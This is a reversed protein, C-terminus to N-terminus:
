HKGKGGGGGKGNGNGEGHGKGGGKEKGEGNGEGNGGGHGRGVHKGERVLVVNRAAFRPAVVVTRRAVYRHGPAVAVYRHGPAGFNKVQGPPIGGHGPPIGGHGPPVGLTSYARGRREAVFVVPTRARIVDVVPASALRHGYQVLVLDRVMYDSLRLATPQTRWTTWVTRYRPGVDSSFDTFLPDYRLGLDSFIRAWTYGRARLDVIAGVPRGSQRALFLIVPLDSDVSRIRPLLPELTVRAVGSDTVTLNLFMQNDNRVAGPDFLYDYQTFAAAPIAAALLLALLGTRLALSSHKRM